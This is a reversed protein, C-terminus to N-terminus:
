PKTSCGQNITVDGSCFILEIARMVKDHEAKKQTCPLRPFAFNVRIGIIM